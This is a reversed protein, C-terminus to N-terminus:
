LIANESSPHPLFNTKYIGFNTLCKTTLNKRRRFPPPLSSCSKVLLM